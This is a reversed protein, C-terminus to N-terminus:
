FIAEEIQLTVAGFVGREYEMGQDDSSLRWVAKPATLNLATLDNPSRRIPPAVPVACGNAGDTTCDATVMHMVDRGLPDVWSILDGVAFCLGTGSWAGTYVSKGTQGGNVIFAGGPNTARTGRRPMHTPGWRFRGARGGLSAIFAQMLRWHNEPLNAWRLEATWRSGPLELTQETGDFPSRGGSQTNAALALRASNPNRLAAPWNLIAM